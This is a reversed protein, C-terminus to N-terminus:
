TSAPFKEKMATYFSNNGYEVVRKKYPIALKTDKFCAPDM